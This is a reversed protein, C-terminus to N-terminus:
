NKYSNKSTSVGQEAEMEDLKREYIGRIKLCSLTVFKWVQFNHLSLINWLQKEFRRVELFIPAEVTNQIHHHPMIKLMMLKNNKVIM